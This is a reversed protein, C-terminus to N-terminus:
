RILFNNCIHQAIQVANTAAGKRLNDAVIWLQLSHNASLGKRIRGVFIENKGQAILPMPYVNESPNDMVVIGNANNLLEYVEEISFGQEFEIYVSESHGGTVPIRVVTAEIDIKSDNLIKHTEHILKMEETTHGNEVFSGGHPFCNLDIQHPYVKRVDEGRREAFLQSVAAAGTGTVSQYTSVVVKKMRFKQHLPNLVVVLQITSCNPNAIIRTKSTIANLNVEPVVLPVDEFMRWASSNDIVFAGDHAFLKATKLSIESGASYIVIDPKKQLANEINTVSYESNQFYISKGFSYESAVPIFEKLQFSFEEMVKIIERGVLGTAGILALKM